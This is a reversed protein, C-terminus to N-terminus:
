GTGLSTRFVAEVEPRGRWNRMFCAMDNRRERRLWLGSRYTRLGDLDILWLTGAADVIFNTAKMDGHGARLLNLARWIRTFQAAFHRLEAPSVKGAEILEHLPTGPVFETLHCSGLRLVGYQRQEVCALPAPTPLGAAILRRANLWSWRARSRLPLHVATHLSDKQNFRKLVMSGSSSGPRPLRVVTCRDGDKLMDGRAILQDPDQWLAEVVDPALRPDHWMVREWSRRVVPDPLQTAGLAASAPDAKGSRGSAAPELRPLPRMARIYAWHDAEALPSVVLRRPSVSGAMPMVM